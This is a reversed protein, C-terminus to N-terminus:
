EGTSGGYQDHSDRLDRVRLRREKLAISPQRSGNPVNSAARPITSMTAVTPTAASTPIPNVTENNMAPSAKSSGAIRSSALLDANEEGGDGGGEDPSAEERDRAAM